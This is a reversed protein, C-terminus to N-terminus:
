PEPYYWLHSTEPELHNLWDTPHFRNFKEFCDSWPFQTRTYIIEGHIKRRTHQAVRTPYQRQPHEMNLLLRTLTHSPPIGGKLTWKRENLTTTAPECVSKPEFWFHHLWGSKGHHSSPPPPKSPPPPAQQPLLLHCIQLNFGGQILWM